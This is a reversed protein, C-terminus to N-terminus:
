LRLSLTATEITVQMRKSLLPHLHLRHSARRNHMLNPWLNVLTSFLSLNPNKSPRRFSLSTIRDMMPSLGPRPMMLPRSLRRKGFDKALGEIIVERFVLRAGRVEVACEGSYRSIPGWCYKFSVVKAHKASHGIDPAAAACEQGRQQFGIGGHLAREEIHWLHDFM